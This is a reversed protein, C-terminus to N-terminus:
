IPCSPARFGVMRAPPMQRSSSRRCISCSRRGRRLSPSSSELGGRWLGCPGGGGDCSPYGFALAVAGSYFLGFLHTHVVLANAFGNLVLLGAPPREEAALRDSLLITLAVGAVFLGYM